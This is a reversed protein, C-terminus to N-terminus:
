LVMKLRAQRLIFEETQLSESLILTLDEVERFLKLLNSTRSMSMNRYLHTYSVPIVDQKYPITVNIGLFDRSRMFSDLEGSSIEALCYDYGGSESRDYRGIRGHIEASFSHGLKEGILGYKLDIVM